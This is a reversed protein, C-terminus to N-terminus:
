LLFVSFFFPLHFVMQRGSPPRPIKDYDGNEIGSWALSQSRLNSLYGGESTKSTRVGQYANQVSIGDDDNGEPPLNPGEKLDRIINDAYQFLM